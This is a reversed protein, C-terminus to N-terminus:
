AEPKPQKNILLKKPGSWDRDRLHSTGAQM